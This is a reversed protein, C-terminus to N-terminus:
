HSMAYVRLLKDDSMPDGPLLNEPCTSPVSRGSYAYNVATPM